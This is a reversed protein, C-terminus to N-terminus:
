PPTRSGTMGPLICRRPDNGAVPAPGFLRASPRVGGPLTGSSLPTRPSPPSCPGRSLGRESRAPSAGGHAPTGAKPGDSSPSGDATSDSADLGHLPDPKKRSGSRSVSSSGATIAMPRLKGWGFPGTADGHTERVCAQARYGNRGAGRFSDVMPVAYSPFGPILPVDSARHVLRRKAPAFAFSRSMLSTPLLKRALSGRRRSPSSPVSRVRAHLEKVSLGRRCMAGGGPRTAAAARRGRVFGARVQFFSRGGIRKRGHPLTRNIRFAVPGIKGAAAGRRVTVVM